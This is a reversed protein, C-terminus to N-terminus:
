VVPKGQILRVLILIIAAVLLIHILGGITYSSVLGLVWLVVLVVAITTLM